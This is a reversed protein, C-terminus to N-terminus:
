GSSSGPIDTSSTAITVADSTSNTTETPKGMLAKGVKGFNQERIAITSALISKWDASKLWSNVTFSSKQEDKKAKEEAM